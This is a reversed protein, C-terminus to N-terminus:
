LGDMRTVGGGGGGLLEKKAKTIEGRGLGRRHGWPVQCTRAKGLCIHVTYMCLLRARSVHGKVAHSHSYVHEASGRCRWGEEDLGESM